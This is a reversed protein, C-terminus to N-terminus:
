SGKWMVLFDHVNAMRTLKREEAVLKMELDNETKTADSAPDNGALIMTHAQALQEIVVIERLTEGTTKSERWGFVDWGLLFSAEVGVGHPIISFTDCAVSPLNAYKSDTEEKKWWWHKIDPIWFTSSFQMPDSHYDNLNLNMHGLNKTSESPWNLYIRAVTLLSSECNSQKITIEAVNCPMWYEEDDSSLGASDNSSQGFRSVPASHFLNNSPVSEPKIVPGHRHNACLENELYRLFAEQYQTTYSSEDESNIDMEKDWMRFSRLKQFCDLDDAPILLM